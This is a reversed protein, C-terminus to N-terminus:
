ESVDGSPLIQISIRIRGDPSTLSHVDGAEAQFASSALLFGLAVASLCFRKKSFSEGVVLGLSECIKHIRATTRRAPDVQMMNGRVGVRERPSLSFRRWPTPSGPPTRDALASPLTGGRGSPSPRPSPSPFARLGCRARMPGPCREGGSGCRRKSGNMM